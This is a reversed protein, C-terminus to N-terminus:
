ALAAALSRVLDAAANVPDEARAAADSMARVIASGVIAADAHRIVERVHDPTSIGFGCAIPLNTVARLAAVAPAINPAEAREGTLGSRALLYVFGTSAAAIAAARAPPTNPSVLLSLTCGAADCARRLDDSEELPADPIIFGDFGADRARLIFDDPRGARAILSISVMAILGISLSPRAATVEALVKAPTTGHALAHHMASAIIPGDAIPDSFPIGVEVISAGASALSALLEALRGPAPFGACIFPMLARRGALDAFIREIRNM